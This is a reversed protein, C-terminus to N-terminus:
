PGRVTGFPRAQRLRVCIAIGEAAAKVRVPESLDRSGSCGTRQITGMRILAGAPEHLGAAKALDVVRRGNGPGELLLSIDGEPVTWRAIGGGSHSAADRRPGSNRVLLRRHEDMLRILGAEDSSVCMGSNTSNDPGIDTRSELYWRVNAPSGDPVCGGSVALSRRARPSSSLGDPVGAGRLSRATPSGARRDTFPTARLRQGSCRFRGSRDGHARAASLRTRIPRAARTRYQPVCVNGERGSRRCASSRDM